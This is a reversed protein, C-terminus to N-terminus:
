NIGNRRKLEEWTLAPPEAFGEFIDAQMMGTGERGLGM